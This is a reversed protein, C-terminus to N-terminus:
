GVAQRVRRGARGRRQTTVIERPNGPREGKGMPGTPLASSERGGCKAIPVLVPVGKIWGGVRYGRRWLSRHWMARLIVEGPVVIQRGGQTLAAPPVRFPLPKWENM